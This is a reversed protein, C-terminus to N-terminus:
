HHSVINSFIIYAEGKLWLIICINFRYGAYVHDIRHSFEDDLPGDSYRTWMLGVAVISRRYLAAAAVVKM